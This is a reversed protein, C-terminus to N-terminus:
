TRMHQKKSPALQLMRESPSHALENMLLRSRSCCVCLLRVLTSSPATANQINWLYRNHALLLTLPGYFSAIELLAEVMLLLCSTRDGLPHGPGPEGSRRLLLMEFTQRM